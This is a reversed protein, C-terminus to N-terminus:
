NENLRRFFIKKVLEPCLFLEKFNWNIPVLNNKLELEDIIIYKM